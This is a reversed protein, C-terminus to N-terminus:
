EYKTAGLRDAYIIQQGEDPWESTAVQRAALWEHIAIWNDNAYTYQRVRRRDACTAMFACGTRISFQRTIIALIAFQVGMFAATSLEFHAAVPAAILMSLIAILVGASSIDWTCRVRQFDTLATFRQGETEVILQGNYPAARVITACDILAIVTM